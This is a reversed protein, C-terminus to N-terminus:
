SAYLKGQQISRDNKSAAQLGTCVGAGVSATGIDVGVGTVGVDMGVNAAGVIIGVASVKVLGM